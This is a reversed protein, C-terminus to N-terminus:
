NGNSHEFLVNLSGLTSFLYSSNQNAQVGGVSGITVEYLSNSDTDTYWTMVKGDQDQSVDWATSQLETPINIHDVFEVSEIEARTFTSGLFIINPKSRKGIYSVGWM